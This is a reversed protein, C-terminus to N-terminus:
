CWIPLLLPRQFYGNDVVGVQQLHHLRLISHAFMLCVLPSRQSFDQVHLPSTMTSFGSLMMKLMNWQLHLLCKSKRFKKPFICMPFGVWSCWGFLSLISLFLVSKTINKKLCYYLLCTLSYLWVGSLNLASHIVIESPFKGLFICFPLPSLLSYDGNYFHIYMESDRKLSIYIFERWYSAETYCNWEVLLLLTIQIIPQCSRFIVYWDGNDGRADATAIVRSQSCRKKRGKGHTKREGKGKMIWGESSGACREEKTRGGAGLVEGERAGERGTWDYNKM